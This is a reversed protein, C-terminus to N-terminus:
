SKILYIPSSWAQTGDELTLRVYLANDRDRTLPITRRVKMGPKLAALVSAIDRAVDIRTVRYGRRELADACANGSRLSVERESSWGGLLVAVHKSVSMAQGEGVEPAGRTAEGHNGQNADM